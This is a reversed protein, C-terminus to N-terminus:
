IVRKRKYLVKNIVLALLTLISILIGVKLYPTEYKLVIDHQGPELLVSMYMISTNIIDAEEGDVYAKWGKSYPISFQLIRNEKCDITGSIKNTDIEVNELVCEQLKDISTQFDSLPLAILSIKDFSLHCDNGVKFIIQNQGSGGYGLDIILNDREFYWNHTKNSIRAEKNLKYTDSSRTTNTFVSMREVKGNGNKDIEDLKLNEFCLYIEYGDPIEASITLSGGSSNTIELKNDKLKANNVEIVEYSIEQSQYDNIAEELGSIAEEVVAGKLLLQEKELGDTKDYDAKLIYNTYTYGIPLANTNEYLLYKNNGSEIQQFGYPYFSNDSSKTTYYKVSALELLGLRADLGEYWSNNHVAALDLGLYYNVVNAPLLSWYITTDYIGNFIGTNASTEKKEVRYFGEDSNFQSASSSSNILNKYIKDDKLFQKLYNSIDPDFMLRIQLLSGLLVLICLMITIYKFDYNLMIVYISVFCIIAFLPVSKQMNSNTGVHMYIFFIYTVTILLLAAKQNNSISKLEAFVTTLGFSVYFVLAYSWRNVAYGFGNMFIGFAPICLGILGLIICIKLWLDRKKTFLIITSILTVVNFGLYTYDSLPIFGGFLYDILDSIHGEYYMFLSAINGQTQSLRACQTYAYITPLFIFSALLLGICGVGAVRLGDFFADKLAKVNREEITKAVYKILFYIITLIVNMYFTYFSIIANLFVIIILYSKKQKNLYLEISGLMLPFLYAWNIYNPHRAITFLIAGSFTYALAGCLAPVTEKKDVAYCYFYFSLGILYLKIFIMMEYRHVIGFFPFAAAFWSIPDTFDYSDLTTIVDLGQGLSFDFLKIDGKFLGQLWESLYKFATFHQYEGDVNWIFSTNNSEFINILFFACVLFALSYYIIFSYRNKLKSLVKDNM